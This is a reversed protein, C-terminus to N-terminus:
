GSKMLVIDGVKAGLYRAVVDCKVTFLFYVGRFESLLEFNGQGKALVVDADEIWRELEALWARYEELSRCKMERVEAGPIQTLGVEVAESVTVDNIVPSNRVVFVFKLSGIEKLITEALLRDLVVEGANDLFYLVKSAGELERRLEEYDFRYPTKTFVEEIAREVEFEDLAGYDIINGAVAVRLAAELPDPSERVRGRLTPLMSLLAENSKRKVDAYPDGLRERIVRYIEFGLEMPTVNWDLSRLVGMVERM